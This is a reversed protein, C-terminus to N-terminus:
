SQFLHIHPYDFIWNKYDLFHGDDFQIVYKVIGLLCISTFVFLLEKKRFSERYIYYFIITYAPYFYPLERVLISTSRFLTVIPLVVLFLKAIFDVYAYKAKIRDYYIVLLIYLMFYEVTYLINLADEGGSYGAAKENLQSLGLLSVVGILLNGTLSSLATLLGFVIGLKKLRAKTLKMCALPYLTFLFIAGYHFTSLLLVSAYYKILKPKELYRMVVYFGAVTFAQRMAVFTVYFFMKYMFFMLLIGWNTVYRKLGVYMLAYFIFSELLLSGNYSLNFVNACLYVYASYGIEYEGSALTILFGNEGKITDYIYEYYSYDSGGMEYRFGSVCAFLGLVFCITLNGNNYSKIANVSKLCIGLNCYQTSSLVFCTIFLFSYLLM